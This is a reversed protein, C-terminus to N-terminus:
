ASVVSVAGGGGPRPTWSASRAFASPKPRGIRIITPGTRETRSCPQGHATSWSWWDPRPCPDLYAIARTVDATVEVVRTEVQDGRRDSGFMEVVRDFPADILGYGSLVLPHVVPVDIAEGPATATGALPHHRPCAASTTIGVSTTSLTSPHRGGLATHPRRRNYFDVFAPLADSRARNTTYPRGYAWEALLTKILREAKGNTQPRYPRTRKHRAGLRSLVNEFQRKYATGNDTLVREIRIGLRAFEAAAIELASIASAATEDPVPVVLAYRSADDVIM